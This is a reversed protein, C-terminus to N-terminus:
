RMQGRPCSTPAMKAEEAAVFQGRAIPDLPGLLRHAQGKFYVLAKEPNTVRQWPRPNALVAALREILEGSTPLPVSGSAGVPEHDTPADAGGVPTVTSVSMVIPTPGAREGVQSNTSAMVGNRSLAARFAEAWRSM